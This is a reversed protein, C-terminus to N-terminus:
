VKDTANSGCFQVYDILERIDPVDGCVSCATNRGRLKVTRFAGSYADVLLM